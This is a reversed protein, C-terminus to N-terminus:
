GGSRIGDASKWVSVEGSSPDVTVHDGTEVRGWEDPPVRHILPIDALICGISIIADAKLMVMAAPARKNLELNYIVYSGVTSGAGERFFMIRGKLPARMGEKELVGLIPDVDGLFSISGNWFLAEGEVKSPAVGKLAAGKFRIDPPNEM